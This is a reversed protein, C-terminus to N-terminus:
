TQPQCKNIMNKKKLCWSKMGSLLVSNEEEKGTRNGANQALVQQGVAKEKDSGNFTRDNRGGTYQKCGKQPRDQSGIRGQTNDTPEARQQNKSGVHPQRQTTLTLSM